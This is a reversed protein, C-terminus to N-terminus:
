VSPTCSGYTIVLGCRGTFSRPMSSIWTRRPDASLRGHQVDGAARLDAGTPDELAPWADTPMQSRAPALIKIGPIHAYWGELSHAHQAGLMRGAGDGHPDRGPRQVPRRCTCCTGATNLIQDLALLSFNVDHDRCNACGVWAAGMGIGAIASESLPM